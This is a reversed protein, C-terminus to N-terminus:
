SGHGDYVIDRITEWSANQLETSIGEGKFTVPMTRYGVSLDRKALVLDLGEEVIERLTVKERRSLEKARQMLHDSIDITTKM